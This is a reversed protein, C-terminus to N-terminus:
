AAVRLPMILARWELASNVPDITIVQVASTFGLRVEETPVCRLTDLLYSANVGIELPDGDWAGPVNENADGTDPTQASVTVGSPTGTLRVLHTQESAVISIRRLAAVFADRDLTVSTPQKNPLINGYAVYPGEILRSIVVTTGARFGILTGNTVVEIDADGAFAKQLLDLAKPGVIVSATNRGARSSDVMAFKHGNTAVMRWTEKGFEWCVGSLTPRSEDDAAAYAVRTIMAHVAEAPVVTATAFDLLPFAPFEDIPLSLLKFRAKGSEVAVRSEPAAAFRVVDGGSQRVIELLRKAPLTTAGYEQVEAPIRVRVSTDLDTTGLEVYDGTSAEVASVSVHSLIPLTSKSALSGSVAALAEALAERQVSFKM